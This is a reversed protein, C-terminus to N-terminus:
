KIGETAIANVTSYIAMQMLNDDLFDKWVSKIGDASLEWVKSM